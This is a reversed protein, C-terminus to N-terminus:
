LINYPLYPSLRSCSEWATTPSSMEKSYFRGRIQLFSELTAWANSPGGKQRLSLHRKSVERVLPEGLCLNQSFSEAKKPPLVQPLSMFQHWQRAWGERSKLGRVVGFQPYENWPIGHQRCWAKVRKDREFTLANGTEQHSWLTNIQCKQHLQNLIEVAEGQFQYLQIGLNKLNEDLEELSENLFLSHSLDWEPSQILSPEFLYFCLVKGVKCAETLPAHDQVRLDRKFWVLQVREPKM